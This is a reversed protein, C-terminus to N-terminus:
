VALLQGTVLLLESSNFPVLSLSGDNTPATPTHLVFTSAFVVFDITKPVSFFLFSFL